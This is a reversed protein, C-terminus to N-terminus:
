AAGGGLAGPLPLEGLTGGGSAVLISNWESEIKALAGALDREGLLVRGMHQEFSRRMDPWGALAPTFAEADPLALATLARARPILTAPDDSGADAASFLPDTLTAPTSPLINALRCFELQSAASTMHWVLEAALDHRRSRAMVGMVMVSIHARGLAGTVAPRVVTQAFVDPAVDRIRDLFNPGTNILALSGSQFGETLHAHGSSAAERPLDGDRFTRVWAGLVERVQDGGFDAVLRGGEDRFPACGEALMIPPLQSEHGIPHSFLFAGARGRFGASAALLADWRAPVADVSVGGKALLARNALVAQTTLYWPVAQLVGGIRCPRLAGPLYVSSAPEPLLDELGRFAGLSAYRAFTLDSMNVVDPSRGAATAAFLKREIAEFPVDVWEVRVGPHAAEFASTLGRIYPEFTSLALTWVELRVPGARRPACGALAAAAGAKLV